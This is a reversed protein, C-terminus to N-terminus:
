DEANEDLCAILDRFIIEWLEVWATSADGPKWEVGVEVMGPETRTPRSPEAQTITPWAPAQGDRSRQHTPRVSNNKPFASANAPTEPSVSGNSPIVDM